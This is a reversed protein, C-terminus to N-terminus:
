TTGSDGNLTSHLIIFNGTGRIGGVRRIYCIVITYATV